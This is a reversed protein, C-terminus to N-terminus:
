AWRGALSNYPTEYRASASHRTYLCYVASKRFLLGPRFSADTACMPNQAITMAVVGAAIATAEIDAADELWERAPNRVDHFFPHQHLIL